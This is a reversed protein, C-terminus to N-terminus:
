AALRVGKMKTRLGTFLDIKDRLHLYLDTKTVISPKRMADLYMVNVFNDPVWDVGIIMREVVNVIKERNMNKILSKGWQVPRDAGTANSSRFYRSGVEKYGYTELCHKYLVERREEAKNEPVPVADDIQTWEKLGTNLLTVYFGSDFVQMVSKSKVGKRAASYAWKAKSYQTTLLANDKHNSDVRFISIFVLKRSTNLYCTLLRDAM